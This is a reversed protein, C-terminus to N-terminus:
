DSYHAIMSVLRGDDSTPVVLERAALPTWPARHYLVYGYDQASPSPDPVIRSPEGVDAILQKLSQGALARARELKPELYLTNLSEQTVPHFYTLVIAALLLAPATRRLRAERSGSALVAGVLALLPLLTAASLVAVVLAKPADWLSSISALELTANM